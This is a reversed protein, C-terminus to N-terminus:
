PPPTPTPLPSTRLTETIAPQATLPTVLGMVDAWLAELSPHARFSREAILDDVALMRERLDNLAEAQSPLQESAQALHAVALALTDRAAGPNDEVLLLRVKLLGQATQLLSLRARLAAVAEDLRGEMDNLSEESTELQQSLEQQTEELQKQIGEMEEELDSATASLDSQTQEIAQQQAQQQAELEDELATIRETLQQSEEMLAEQDEVQAAAREQLEFVEAELDVVRDQLARHNDYINESNKAVQEELIAIRASNEQVPWVLRRYAWPVGYFLGLGILAGIVLVFVLRILFRLIAGVVRLFPSGSPDRQETM